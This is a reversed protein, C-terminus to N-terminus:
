GDALGEGNWILLDLVKLWQIFASDFHCDAARSLLDIFLGAGAFPKRDSGLAGV